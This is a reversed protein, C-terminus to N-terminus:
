SSLRLRSRDRAFFGAVRGPFGRWAPRDPEWGFRLQDPQAVPRRLGARAPPRKPEAIPQALPTVLKRLIESTVIFGLVNAIFFCFTLEVFAMVFFSFIIAASFSRLSCDCAISWPVDVKLSAPSTHPISSAM